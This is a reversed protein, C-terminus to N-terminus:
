DTRWRNFVATFGWGIRATGTRSGGWARRELITTIAFLLPFVLLISRDLAGRLSLSSGGSPALAVLWHKLIVFVQDLTDAMM